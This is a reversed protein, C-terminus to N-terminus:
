VADEDGLDLDEEQANTTTTTTNNNNNSEGKKPVEESMEEEETFKRKRNEKNEKRMENFNECRVTITNTFEKGDRNTTIKIKEVPTEGVWGKCSVKLTSTPIDKGMLPVTVRTIGEYGTMAKTGNRLAEDIEKDIGWESQVQKIRVDPTSDVTKKMSTQVEETYIQVKMERGEFAVEFVNAFRATGEIIVWLAGDQRNTWTKMGAFLRRVESFTAALQTIVGSLEEDKMRWVVEKRDKDKKIVKVIVRTTKGEIENDLVLAVRDRQPQGAVDPRPKDKDKGKGKDVTLDVIKTITTTQTKDKEPSKAIKRLDKPVTLKRIREEKTGEMTRRYTAENQLREAIASDAVSPWGAMDEKTV